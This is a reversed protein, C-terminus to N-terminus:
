KGVIYDFVQYDKNNNILSYFCETVTLSHQLFFGFFSISAVYLFLLINEGLTM